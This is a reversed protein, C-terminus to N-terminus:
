HMKILQAHPIGAIWIIGSPKIFGKRVAKEVIKEGVLNVISAKEFLSISDELEMKLGKYFAEKVEIKLGKEKDEFTKGLIEEDCIALIVENKVKVVKVYVKSTL